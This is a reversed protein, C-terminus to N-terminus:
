PCSNPWLPMFQYWQDLDKRIEPEMLHMIGQTLKLRGDRNGIARRDYAIEPLVHVVFGEPRKVITVGLLACGTMRALEAVLPSAAFPRGFFEVQSHNMRSPRDVAVALTGGSELRKVADLLAFSDKGLVLTDIGWRARSATRIEMLGEDPEAMTLVGLRLGLRSLFIGGLEWNGLHLTIFLIGRKRLHAEEIIKLAGPDAVWQDTPIGAELRWLEVLKVAFHRYLRRSTKWALRQDEGCAPLLNRVVVERRRADLLFHAQAIAVCAMNSVWRPTVRALFLGVRWIGARYLSSAPFGKRLQGGASLGNEDAGCCLRWWSPLLFVAIIVNAAIGVACVKGLSAMGPYSSWALSAFGAVATGGCLLLARGISRRAVLADGHHRRLAMQMFISYDVGTGLILPVAMLNLLNWSWGALSMIALLWVGGLALAALGLLIETPRRFALWLSTLVLFVMPAIIYWLREQVRKLTTMGLLDWGSLLVQHDALEQSLKMLPSSSSVNTQPYVAGMAFWENTARAVFRKLLWQAVRNTPWVVAEPGAARGWTRMLEETLFLADDSFGEKRASDKLTAGMSVLAAATQRNTHQNEPHPWLSTPLVYKGILGDSQARHLLGETQTLRRHVASEDSGPVVVWLTDKPIGMQLTMEELASQAEGRQPQLANGSRDLRPWSNWIAAACLLLTLVTIQVSWWCKGREQSNLRLDLTERPPIFFSWWRARLHTNGLGRRDPFLPPLYVLVMVLAAVSVGIAVLTGLQALGPLGGLNLVLFACITTIAAWLISPAIARRIEPVTLNPHALAEQYHIVAYDVALGLLVAAFGMSVVSIPGLVLGGLALTALLILALLALLWLMPLWRRHTLWFLLAIIGATGVVSGSLDKQMSAAIETVFVPRGTYRLVVGDWDKSEARLEAVAEKVAKMWQDCEWYSDLQGMSQVFLLRYTGESSAFLREGQEMSVGSLESLGPINSLDFPDFARRAIDVPSLSTALVEKTEELLHTLNSPALKNTLEGFLSPTQNLWICGLLEALEGPNELWPPQWTVGEVLNTKSRLGNGLVAALREAQEPDPARLTIILERANAFHKQYLKLGQVTPQDSPLLNLIDPDFRLRFFGVIVLLGLPVWWWVRLLNRM